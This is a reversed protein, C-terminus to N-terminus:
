VSPLRVEPDPLPEDAHDFFWGAMTGADLAAISGDIKLDWVWRTNLMKKAAREDVDDLADHAVYVLSGSSIAALTGICATAMEAYTIERLDYGRRVLEDGVDTAPGFRDYGVDAIERDDILGAVRDAVWDTGSDEDIVRWRMRHDGPERWAAVIASRGRNVDCAFALGVPVTPPPLIDRRADAWPKAPIVRELVKTWLNGYGRLVDGAKGRRALKRATKMVAREKLTYGRAPMYSILLEVGAAFEPSDPDQELLQELEDRREDPFGIEFYATGENEGAEVAARGAAVDEKLWVSEDTGATSHRWWQGGTTLFTPEIAATLANGTAMDFAWHEDNIVLHPPPQKGHIADEKPAFVGFLSALKPFSIRESGQSRRVKGLRGYPSREFRPVFGDIFTERADERTQASVWSSSYPRILCRHVGLPGDLTTKGQQRQVTIMVDPYAWEGDPLVELAVDVVYQQWPMFPTGFARALKGVAPGFTRRSPDRPTAYKLGRIEPTM